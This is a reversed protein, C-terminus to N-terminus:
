MKSKCYFYLGSPGPVAVDAEAQIQIGGRGGGGGHGGRKGFSYFPVYAEGKAEM